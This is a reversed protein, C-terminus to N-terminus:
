IWDISKYEIENPYMKIYYKWNRRHREHPKKRESNQVLIRWVKKEGGCTGSFVGLENQRTCM